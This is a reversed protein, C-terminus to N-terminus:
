PVEEVLDREAPENLEIWLPIIKFGPNLYLLLMVFRMSYLHEYGLGKAKKIIESLLCDRELLESPITPM